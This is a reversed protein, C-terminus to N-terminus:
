VGSLHATRPRPFIDDEVTQVSKSPLCPSPSPLCAQEATLLPSPGCLHGSLHWPESEPDTFPYLLGGRDHPKSSSLCM